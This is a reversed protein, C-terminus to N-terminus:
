LVLSSHLPAPGVRARAENVASWAEAEASNAKGAEQDETEYVVEGKGVGEPWVLRRGRGRACWFEGRESFRGVM